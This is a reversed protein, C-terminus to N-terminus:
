RHERRRYELAVRKKKEIKLKVVREKKEVSSAFLLFSFIKKEKNREGAKKIKRFSFFLVRL